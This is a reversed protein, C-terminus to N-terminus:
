GDAAEVAGLLARATQTGRLTAVIAGERNAVYTIPTVNAWTDGHFEGLFEKTALLFPHRFRSRAATQRSEELPYGMVPDTLISWMVVDEGLRGELAREFDLIAPKERECSGCRSRTFHLVAIRGALEERARPTGDLAELRFDPLREGRHKEIEHDVIARVVIRGLPYGAALVAVVVITIKAVRSGTM